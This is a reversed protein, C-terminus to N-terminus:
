EREDKRIKKWLSVRANQLEVGNTSNHIGNALDVELKSIRSELAPISVQKEFKKKNLVGLEFELEVFRKYVERDTAKFFLCAVNCVELCERAEVEMAEKPANNENAIGDAQNFAGWCQKTGM